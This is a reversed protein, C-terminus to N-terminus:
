VRMTFLEAIFYLAGSSRPNQQQSPHLTPRSHILKLCFELSATQSDSTQYRVTKHISTERFIKKRWEQHKNLVSPYHNM